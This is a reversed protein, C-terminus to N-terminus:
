VHARGIELFAEIREFDAADFTASELAIREIEDLFGDREFRMSPDEITDTAYLIVFRAGVGPRKRRLIRGMRQIMQRRTRSANVVIGLDADPVDIGEDLVRPAVVADLRRGRLDDLIVRRHRRATTGTIVDVSVVPDLRM